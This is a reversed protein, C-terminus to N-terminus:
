YSSHGSCSSSSAPRFRAVSSFACAPDPSVDGRSLALSSFPEPHRFRLSWALFDNRPEVKLFRSLFLTREICLLSAALLRLVTAGPKCSVSKSSSVLSSHFGHLRDIDRLPLQLAHEIGSSLVVTSESLFSTWSFGAFSGPQPSALRSRRSRLRFLAIPNESRFNRASSCRHWRLSEEPSSDHNDNNLSTCPRAILFM